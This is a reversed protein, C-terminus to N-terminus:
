PERPTLAQVHQYWELLAESRANCEGVRNTQEGWAKYMVMFRGEWVDKYAGEPHVLAMESPPPTPQCPRTLEIPPLSENVVPTVTSSSCGTM